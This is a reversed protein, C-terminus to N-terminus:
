VVRLHGEERRCARWADHGSPVGTVNGTSAPLVACVGGFAMRRTEVMVVPRGEGLGVEMALHADGTELYACCTAGAQGEWGCREMEEPGEVQAGTKWSRGAWRLRVKSTKRTAGRRGIRTEEPCLPSVPSTTVWPM